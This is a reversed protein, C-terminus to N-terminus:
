LSEEINSLINIMEDKFIKKIPINIYNGLIQQHNKLTERFKKDVFEMAEKSSQINSMLQNIENKAKQPDYNINMLFNFLGKIIDDKNNTNSNIIEKVKVYNEHINEIFDNEKRAKSSFYSKVDIFIPILKKNRDFDNCLKKLFYKIHLKTYEERDTEDFRKYFDVFSQIYPDILISIDEHEIHNRKIPKSYYLIAPLYYKNLFIKYLIIKKLNNM